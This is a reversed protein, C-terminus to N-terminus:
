NQPDPWREPVGIAVHREGSLWAGVSNLGPECPRPKTSYLVPGRGLHGLHTAQDM